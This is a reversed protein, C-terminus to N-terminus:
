QTTHPTILFLHSCDESVEGTHFSAVAEFAGNQGCGMCHFDGDAWGLGGNGFKSLIASPTKEEHFPCLVAVRDGKLSKNPVTVSYEKSV